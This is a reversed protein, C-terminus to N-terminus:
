ALRELFPKVFFFRVRESPSEDGRSPTEEVNVNAAKRKVDASASEDDSSLLEVVEEEASKCKKSSLRTSPPQDEGESSRLDVVNNSTKAPAAVRGLLSRKDARIGSRIAFISENPEEDNSLDIAGDTDAAEDAAKRKKPVLTPAIGTSTPSTSM